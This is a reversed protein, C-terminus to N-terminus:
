NKRRAEARRALDRREEDELFERFGAGAPELYGYFNSRCYNYFDQNLSAPVPDGDTWKPGLISRFTKPMQREKDKEIQGIM